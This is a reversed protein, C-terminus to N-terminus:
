IFGDSGSCLEREDSYSQKAGGKFYVDRVMSCTQGNKQYTRLTTIQGSSGTANNHWRQSVRSGARAQRVAREHAEQWMARDREDMERGIESGIAAGALAGIAGGVLAGDRGGVANGILAGTLAGGAGGLLAGQTQKPGATTTCGALVLSSSVLLLAISGKRRHSM